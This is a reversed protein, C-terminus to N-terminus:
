VEKGILTFYSDSERDYTAAFEIVDAAAITYPFTITAPTAGNKGVRLDTIGPAITASTISLNRGFVQKFSEIGTFSFSATFGAVIGEIWEAKVKRQTGTLENDKPKIYIDSEAEFPSNVQRISKLADGINTSDIEPYNAIIYDTLQTFQADTPVSGNTALGLVNDVAYWNYLLGYAAIMEAESDIGAVSAFPYVAYAGTTLNGWDVDSYGTPIPTTGDAYTTTKLNMTSWVQDGIIVGDYTNGDGDTFTGPLIRGDTKTGDAPAYPRVLRVSMGNTESGTFDFLASDGSDFDIYFQSKDKSWIGFFEGIGAYNPNSNRTGAPLAGFGFKDTGFINPDGSDDWRPHETTAATITEPEWLGSLTTAEAKTVYSFRSYTQDQIAITATASAGSGVQYAKFRLMARDGAQATFDSIPLFLSYDNLNTSLDDLNSQGLLTINNSSDVNYYEVFLVVERSTDNKRASVNANVSEIDLSVGDPVPVSIFEAITNATGATTGTIAQSINVINGEIPTEGTEYYTVGGIEITSNYLYEVSTRPTNQQLSALIAELNTISGISHADRSNRNSLFLNHDFLGKYVWVGPSEDNPEVGITATEDFRYWVAPSAFVIITDGTNMGEIAKMEAVSDVIGTSTNSTVVQFEDGENFWKTPYAEPSQGQPIDVLARYLKPTEFGATASSYAVIAGQLYGGIKNPSYVEVNEPTLTEGGQANIRAIVENLKNRVSLGTEANLINQIDAM